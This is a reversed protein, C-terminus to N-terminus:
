GYAEDRAVFLQDGPDVVAAYCVAGSRRERGASGPQLARASSPARLGAPGPLRWSAIATARSELYIDRDQRSHVGPIGPTASGLTLGREVAEGRREARVHYESRSQQEREQRHSYVKTDQLAHLLKGRAVRLECAPPLFPLVQTLEAIESLAVLVAAQRTSRGPRGPPPWFGVGLHPLRSEGYHVFRSRVVCRCVSSRCLSLAATLDVRIPGM